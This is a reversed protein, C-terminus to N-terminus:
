MIGNLGSLLKTINTSYFHNSENKKYFLFPFFDQKNLTPYPLNFLCRIKNAWQKSLTRCFTPFIKNQYVTVYYHIYKKCQIVYLKNTSKAYLYKVTNAYLYKIIKFKYIILNM